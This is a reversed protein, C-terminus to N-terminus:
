HELFEGALAELNELGDLLDELLVDLVLLLKILEGQNQIFQM